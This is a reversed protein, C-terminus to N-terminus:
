AAVKRRAPAVAPPATRGGTIAALRATHSEASEFTFHTGPRVAGKRIARGLLTAERATMTHTSAVIYGETDAGRGCSRV